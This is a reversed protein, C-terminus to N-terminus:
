VKEAQNEPTEQVPGRSGYRSEWSRCREKWQAKMQEREEESMNRWRNKWGHWGQKWETKMEAREEKSMDHWHQWPGQHWEKRYDMMPNRGWRKHEWHRGGGGFGRFLLRALILLGVAQWFTITIGTHFINPILGNWLLQVFWGLVMSALVVVLMVGIVKGVIRIPRM